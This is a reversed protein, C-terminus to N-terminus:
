LNYLIPYVFFAIHAIALFLSFKYYNRYFLYFSLIPSILMYVGRIYTHLGGYLPLPWNFAAIFLILLAIILSFTNLVICLSKQM